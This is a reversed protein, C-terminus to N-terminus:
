IVYKQKIGVVNKGSNKLEQIYELFDIEKQLDEDTYDKLLQDLKMIENWFDYEDM